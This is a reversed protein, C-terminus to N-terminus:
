ASRLLLKIRPAAITDPGECVHLAERRWVLGEGPGLRLTVGRSPDSPPALRLRHGREDINLWVWIESRRAPGQGACVDGGTEEGSSNVAQFILDVPSRFGSDLTQVLDTLTDLPRWDPAAAREVLDQDAAGTLRPLTHLWLREILHGPITFLQAGAVGTDGCGPDSRIEIDECDADIAERLGALGLYLPSQRLEFTAEGVVFQLSRTM